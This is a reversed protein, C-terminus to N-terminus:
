AMAEVDNLIKLIKTDYALDTPYNGKGQVKDLFSRVEDIYMGEGINPNYGAHSQSRKFNVKEISEDPHHVEVYEDEWNWRLQALSGNVTFKRTAVRSVVDVVLSMLHGEKFRFAMNYTDDIEEAGEITITKGFLGVSKQPLGFVKCLWTLEFPVIERCGGTSKQSVYFDSVKEYPHWDPLYQGSHYIVNSIKGLKGENVLKNILQVAPHFLLTCSPAGVLGSKHFRVEFDEMGELIVSAEVFFHCGHKLCLEMYPLHKDPPVSIICVPKENKMFTEVDSVSTIDAEKLRDARQDFGYIESYNLSKLCRIRRKGMSGLGIVLFKTM